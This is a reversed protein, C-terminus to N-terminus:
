VSVVAQHVTQSFQMRSSIQQALLPRLNAHIFQGFYTSQQGQRLEILENKLSDTGVSTLYRAMEVQKTQFGLKIEIHVFNDSLILTEYDNAHIANYIFAILLAAIEVMSFPLIYHAGFWYFASGILLTVLGLVGFIRAIQSPAMSINRKLHWRWTSGDGSGLVNHTLHESDMQNLTRLYGM